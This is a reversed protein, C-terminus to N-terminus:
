YKKILQKQKFNQKGGIKISENIKNPSDIKPFNADKIIVQLNELGGPNELELFHANWGIRRLHLLGKANKLNDFIANWGIEELQELGTADELESFNGIEGIYTLNNLYSADKLKTFYAGRDVMKLSQLGYSSLLNSLYLNGNVRELKNLSSAEVLNFLKLDGKVYTLKELNKSSTLLSLDLDGLVIKPIVIDNLEHLTGLNLDGKYVVIDKRKLDEISLAVQEEKCNYIKSLDQKINRGEKLTNIRSDENYGFGDKNADYNYIFELDEKNFEIEYKKKNFLEKIKKLNNLKYYMDEQYEFEKLKNELIEILEIEINQNDDLIGRIEFIKNNKMRIVIRPMLINKIDDNTYYIYINGYDLYSKATTYGKICWETGGGLLSKVLKPADESTKYCIWEGKIKELEKKKAELNKTYFYEYIKSFSKGKLLYNLIEDDYEKKEYLFESMLKISHYLADEDLDPFIKITSKNRKTFRKKSNSYSGLSLMGHFAWYKAWLPYNIDTSFLYDIWIDLSKKQDSIIIQALRHKDEEDLFVAGYGRKMAANQMNRYYREKINEEKIVYKNYYLEKLREKDVDRKSSNALSHIREIRRLYKRINKLRYKPNYNGGSVEKSDALDPYLKNILEEGKYNNNM